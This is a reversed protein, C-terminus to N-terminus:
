RSNPYIPAQPVLMHVVDDHGLQRYGHRPPALPVLALKTEPSLLASSSSGAPIDPLILSRHPFPPFCSFLSLYPNYTPIAAALYKSSVLKHPFFCGSLRLLFPKPPPSFLPFPGLEILMLRRRRLLMWNSTLIMLIIMISITSRLSRMM